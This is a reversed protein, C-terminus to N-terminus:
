AARATEHGATLDAQADTATHGDRSPRGLLYGQAAARAPRVRSPQPPLVPTAISRVLAARRVQEILKGGAHVVQTLTGAKHGQGHKGGKSM